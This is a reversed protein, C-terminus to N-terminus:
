AAMTAFRDVLAALEDFRCDLVDGRHLGLSRLIHEGASLVLFTGFQPHIFEPLLGADRAIAGITRVHDDIISDELSWQSVEFDWGASCLDHM